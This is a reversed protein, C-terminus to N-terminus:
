ISHPMERVRKTIEPIVIIATVQDADYKEVMYCLGSLM